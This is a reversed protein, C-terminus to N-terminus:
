ERPPAKEQYFWCNRFDYQGGDARYQKGVTEMTQAFQVAEPSKDSDFPTLSMVYYKGDRTRVPRVPEGKANLWAAITQADQDPHAGLTQQVVLYWKGPIWQDSTTPPAVPPKPPPEVPQEQGPALAKELTDAQKPVPAAGVSVRGLLFAVILLVVLASGGAVAWGYTLSVQVQRGMVAMLPELRGPMALPPPMRVTPQLPVPQAPRGAPAPASPVAAPRATVRVAPAVPRVPPAPAAPPTQVQGSPHLKEKGLLEFLSIADKRKRM